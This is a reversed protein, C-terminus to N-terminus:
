SCDHDLGVTDRHPKRLLVRGSDLCQKSEVRKSCAADGKWQIADAVASEQFGLMQMRLLVRGSDSCKRKSAVFSVGASVMTFDDVRCCPLVVGGTTRFGGPNGGSPGDDGGPAGGSGLDNGDPAGGLDGSNYAGDLADVLSVRRSTTLPSSRQSSKHERRLLTTPSSRMPTAM